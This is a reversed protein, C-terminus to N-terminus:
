FASAFTPRSVDLPMSAMETVAGHSDVSCRARAIAAGTKPDHAELTFTYDAAYFTSLGSSVSGTGGHYALKFAPASAGPAALSTVFAHACAKLSAKEPSASSIAPSLAAITAAALFMKRIIM